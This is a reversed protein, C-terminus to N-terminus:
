EPEKFGPRKYLVKFGAAKYLDITTKAKDFDKEKMTLWEAACPSRMGEKKCEPCLNNWSVNKQM